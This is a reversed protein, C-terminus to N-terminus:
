RGCCRKYKKGSGCPCTDNRGIKNVRIPEESVPGWPDVEQEEWIHEPRGEPLSGHRFLHYMQEFEGPKGPDLTLLELGPPEKADRNIDPYEESPSLLDISYGSKAKIEAVLELLSGFIDRGLGEDLQPDRCLAVLTEVYPVAQQYREQEVLIDAVSYVSDIERPVLRLAERYHPMALDPRLGNRLVNGLRRHLEANDPEREVEKKLFHYAESVSRFTKGGAAIAVPQAILPTDPPEDEGLVGLVMSLRVVELSLSSLSEETIEHSELMGCGKCQVIQGISVDKARQGLYVRELNYRYTRKCTTCRLPLPIPKKQLTEALKDPDDLAESLDYGQETKRPIHQISADGEMGHLEALFWITRRIAEEGERWERALPELFHPSAVEGITDVLFSSFPRSMYEDFHELLFQVVGETPFEDLLHLRHPEPPSQRWRGLLGEMVESDKLMLQEAETAEEAVSEGYLRDMAEQFVQHRGPVGLAELMYFPYACYGWGSSLVKRLGSLVKQPEQKRPCYAM